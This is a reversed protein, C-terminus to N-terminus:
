ANALDLEGVASTAHNLVVGHALELSTPPGSAGRLAAYVQSGLFARLRSAIAECDEQLCLALVVGAIGAGTLSAGLAGADLAVDVLADLAPTSARYSGPCLEIPTRSQELQTLATDSVGYRYPTGAHTFQRDDDHGVSMLTGCAVVDGEQLHEFFSRARESEAIGFLLPGRVDFAHPRDQESVSGFCQRYTADLNPLEYRGRLADLEIEVPIRRLLAYLFKVGGIDSLGETSFDVLSRLKQAREAPIGFRVTEQRAIEMAISYAFRNRTYDVLQPGSISRKTFSNIVLVRATDPIRAYRASNIGGAHPALTLNVVSDRAGLVEAAQDGRGCRSGTYWEADQALAILEESSVSKGHRALTASVLALCLAASSSLAAGSPIDSGVVGHLGQIPERPFHHAVRVVAGRVYNSWDGRSADVMDKVEPSTIYTMWNDSSQPSFRTEPVPFSADDFEPVINAFLVRRDDNPSMSVVVERQHTALNLYGGHTDVHMGRLNIRGPCRFLRVPEDGYRRAHTTLVRRILALRESIVGADPGYVTALARHTGADPNALSDLLSVASLYSRRPAEDSTM